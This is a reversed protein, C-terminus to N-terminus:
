IGRQEGLLGDRFHERCRKVCFFATIMSSLFHGVTLILLILTLDIHDSVLWILAITTVGGIIFVMALLRSLSLSIAAVFTVTDLGVVIFYVGILPTLKKAYGYSDEYFVDIMLPGLLYIGIAALVAPGFVSLAFKGIVAKFEKIDKQAIAYVIHLRWVRTAQSFYLTSMPVLQWVVTFIGLMEAGMTNFILIRTGGGLTFKSLAFIVVFMGASYVRKLSTFGIRLRVDALDYIQWLFALIQSVLLCSLVILVNGEIFLFISIVGFSFLLKEILHIQTYRINQKRLEYHVSMLLGNLAFVLLGILNASGTSLVYLCTAVLLVCFNIWKTTFIWDNVIHGHISYLKPGTENTGFNIIQVAIAGLVGLYVYTGFAGPGLTNALFINTGYALVAMTGSYFVLSTLEKYM